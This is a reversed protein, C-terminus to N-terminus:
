SGPIRQKLESQMQQTLQTLEPLHERAAALQEAAAHSELTRACDRLTTAGFTEATSKITHACRRATKADHATLADTLAPLLDSLENMAATAVDVLLDNDGDMASLGCEWNVLQQTVPATGDSASERQSAVKPQKTGSKAMLRQIAGNLEDRRIPKSVYDDMGTQLCKERDGKMAHATMAVIPVHTNAFSHQELDRITRTAELGDMVPMQVDMLILDFSGSRWADVAEQGNEALTTQHGWKKL